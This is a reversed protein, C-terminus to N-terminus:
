TKSPNNKDPLSPLLTSSTTALVILAEDDESSSVFNTPIHNRSSLQVDQRIVDPVALMSVDQHNRQLNLITNYHELAVAYKAKLTCVEHELEEIRNKTKMRSSAASERNRVRRAEKRWASLQDKSLNSNGYAPMYCAQQKRTTDEDTMLEKIKTVHLMEKKQANSTAIAADRFDSNRDGVLPENSHVPGGDLPCTLSKKRAVRKRGPLNTSGQNVAQAAEAPHHLNSDRLEIRRKRAQSHSDYKEKRPSSGSKGNRSNSELVITPAMVAPMSAMNDSPPTAAILHPHSVLESSMSNTAEENYVLVVPVMDAGRRPTEDRSQYQQHKLEQKERQGNQQLVISGINAIEDPDIAGMASEFTAADLLCSVDILHKMKGESDM